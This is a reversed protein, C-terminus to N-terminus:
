RDNVDNDDSSSDDDERDRGGGFQNKPRSRFHSLLAADRGEGYRGESQGMQHYSSSLTDGRGQTAM